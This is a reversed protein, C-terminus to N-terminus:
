YLVKYFKEENENISATQFKACTRVVATYIAHHPKFFNAFHHRWVKSSESHNFIRCVSNGPKCFLIFVCALVRKELRTVLIRVLFGFIPLKVLMVQARDIDRVRKARDMVPTLFTVDVPIKHHRSTVHIGLVTRKELVFVANYTHRKDRDIGKEKVREDYM